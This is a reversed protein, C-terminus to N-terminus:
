VRKLRSVCLMTSTISEVETCPFYFCGGRLYGGGGLFLAKHDPSILWQNGKILGAIRGPTGMPPPLNLLWSYKFYGNAFKPDKSKAVHVRGSVVLTKM